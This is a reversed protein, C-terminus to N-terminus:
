VSSTYCVKSDWENLARITLFQKEGNTGVTYGDHECRVIVNLDNGIDFKRYRDLFFLCYHTFLELIQFSLLLLLILLGIESNWHILIHAPLLVKYFFYELM